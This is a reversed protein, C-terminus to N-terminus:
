ALMEEIKKIAPATMIIKEYGILSVPDISIADCVDVNRLNRVSLYLNEDLEDTVILGDKINLVKLKESLLKTKPSDVMFSEVAILRNQRCLESLIAQMAGKYMKRNIKQSHDQPRAAFTVGGKRWLPGRTTGARARGTGKQKWPKKGGGSVDSRNKQQKTGARANAQFAVVVQHVLAENYPRDFNVASVELKGAKASGFETLNLEM